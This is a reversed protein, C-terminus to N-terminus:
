QIYTGRMTATGASTTVSTGTLTMADRAGWYGAEPADGYMPIYALLTNDVVLLPSAGAQGAGISAAVRAGQAGSWLAWECVRGATFSSTGARCMVNWHSNAFNGYAGVTHSSGTPTQATGNIWLSNAPTARDWQFCYHGWLNPPSPVLTYTDNWNIAGQGINMQLDTGTLNAFCEGNAGGADTYEMWIELSGPYSDRWGWYALTIVSFSSLDITVKGADSSGNFLRAM